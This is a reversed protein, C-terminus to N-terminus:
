IKDVNRNEDGFLCPNAMGKKCYREPIMKNIFSEKIEKKAIRGVFEYRPNKDDKSKESINWSKVEYVEKVIGSSVSLVYPYKKIDPEKIRWCSRTIQYRAENNNVNNEEKYKKIYDNRVKIIMYGYGNPNKFEEVENNKIIEDFDADCLGLFWEVVDYLERTIEELNKDNTIEESNKVYSLKDKLESNARGIEKKPKEILEINEKGSIYIKFAEKYKENVEVEKIDSKPKLKILSIKIEFSKGHPRPLIELQLRHNDKYKRFIGLSSYIGLHGWHNLEYKKNKSPKYVDVFKQQFYTKFNIKEWEKIPKSSIKTLDNYLSHIHEIYFDLIESNTKCPYKNFLENIEEIFFCKWGYKKCAEIDNECYEKLDTKFFTKFVKVNDIRKYEENLAKNYDELQNHESAFVKDEIAIVCLTGNYNFEVLVDIRKKQAYTKLDTIENDKISLGTLFNILGYAIERVKENECDYNEFLWRLFADQSLEKTAYDFLNKM